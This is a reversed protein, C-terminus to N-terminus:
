RTLSSWDFGGDANPKDGVKPKPLKPGTLAQEVAPAKLDDQGAERQAQGGILKRLAERYEKGLQFRRGEARIVACRGDPSYGAALAGRLCRPLRGGSRNHIETWRTKAEDEEAPPMVFIV